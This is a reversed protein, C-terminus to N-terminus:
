AGHEHGLYNDELERILEDIFGMADAKKDM